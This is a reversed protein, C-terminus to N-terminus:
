DPEVPATAPTGAAGAKKAAVKAKLAAKAAKMRRRLEEESNEDVLTSVEEESPAGGNELREIKRNLREAAQAYAADQKVRKEKYIALLQADPRKVKTRKVKPEETSAEVNPTKPATAGAGKGTAAKAALKDKISTTTMTAKRETTASM